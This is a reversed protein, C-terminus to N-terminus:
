FFPFPLSPERFRKHGILYSYVLQVGGFVNNTFPDAKNPKYYFDYAMGLTMYKEFEFGIYANVADSTRWVVGGMVSGKHRGFLIGNEFLVVRTFANVTAQFSNNQRALVTNVNFEFATRTTIRAGLQLTYRLSTRDSERVVFGMRPRNIHQFSVGAYPMIEPNGRIKQTRYWLLGINADPVILTYQQV